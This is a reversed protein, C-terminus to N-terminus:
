TEGTSFRRKFRSVLLCLAWSAAFSLVIATTPALLSDTMNLLAVVMLAPGMFLVAILVIMPWLPDFIASDM